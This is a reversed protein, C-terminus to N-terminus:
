GDKDIMYVINIVGDCVFIYLLEDICIGCFRIVSGKLYMSFFFCYWGCFNIVVVGNLLDFVVIDGNNNEIFNILEKYM